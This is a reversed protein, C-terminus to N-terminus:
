SLLVVRHFAEKYSDKLFQIWFHSLLYNFHEDASWEAVETINIAFLSHFRKQLSNWTKICNFGKWPRNPSIQDPPPPITFARDEHSLAEWHRTCYAQPISAVEKPFQQLFTLSLARFHLWKCQQSCGAGSNSITNYANSLLLKNHSTFWSSLSSNCKGEEYHYVPLKLM